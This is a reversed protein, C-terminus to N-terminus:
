EQTYIPQQMLTHIHLIHTCVHLSYHTNTIHQKNCVCIYMKLSSRLSHKHALTHAHVYRRLEFLTERTFSSSWKLHVCCTFLPCPKMSTSIAASTPVAYVNSHYSAIDYSSLLTFMSRQEWEVTDVLWWTALSKVWACLDLVSFPQGNLLDGNYHCSPGTILSGSQSSMTATNLNLAPM